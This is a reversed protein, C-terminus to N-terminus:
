DSLDGAEAEVLAQLNQLTQKRIQKCEEKVRDFENVISSCRRTVAEHCEHFKQLVDVSIQQQNQTLM